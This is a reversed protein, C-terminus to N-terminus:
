VKVFLRHSGSRAWWGGGPILRKFGYKSSDTAPCGTKDNNIWGPYVGAEVFTFTLCLVFDQQTGGYKGYRAKRNPPVNISSDRTDVPIYFVRESSGLTNNGSCVKCRGHM